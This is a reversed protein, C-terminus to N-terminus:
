RDVARGEHDSYRPLFRRIPGTQGQRGHWRIPRTEKGIGIAAVAIEAIREVAIGPLQAPLRRIGEAPVLDRDDRRAAVHLTREFLAKKLGGEENMKANVGDYIRNFIRPVSILVTPRIQVLDEALQPISRAYSVASGAAMPLYYGCTREFAHSLPLFSLFEDDPFIEIVKFAAQVNYLINYHSLMVGKPFGTTGSTYQM